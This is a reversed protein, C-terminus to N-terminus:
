QNSEHGVSRVRKNKYEERDRLKHEAAHEAYVFNRTKSRKDPVIVLAYRSLQVFEDFDIVDTDEEHSEEWKEYLIHAVNKLQYSVRQVGKTKTGYVEKLINWMYDIFNQPDKEVKSGMFVLPNM